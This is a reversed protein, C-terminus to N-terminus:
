QQPSNHKKHRKLYNMILNKIFDLIGTRKKAPEKKNAM